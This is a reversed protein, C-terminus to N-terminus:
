IRDNERLSRIYKETEEISGFLDGASGAYKEVDINAPLKNKAFYEDVEDKLSKQPKLITIIVKQGPMLNLDEDFIFNKGDYTATVAELM